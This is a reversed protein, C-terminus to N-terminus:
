LSRMDAVRRTLNRATGSNERGPRIWAIDYDSDRTMAADREEDSSFGGLTSFEHGENSVSGCCHRPNTFMHYVTVRSPIILYNALYEQAFYDAGRADGVVFKHGALYSKNIEPQYHLLFEEETLDLHGSIYAVTM